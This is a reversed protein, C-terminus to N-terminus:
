NRGREAETRVYQEAANKAAEMSGAVQIISPTSADKSEIFCDDHDLQWMWRRGTKYVQATWPRIIAWYHQLSGSGGDHWDVPVMQQPPVPTMM